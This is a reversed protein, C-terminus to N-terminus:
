GYHLGNLTQTFVRGASTSAVKLHAYTTSLVIGPQLGGRRFGDRQLTKV